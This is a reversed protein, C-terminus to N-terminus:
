DKVSRAPPIGRAAAQQFRTPSRCNHSEDHLIYVNMKKGTKMDAKQHAWHGQDREPIMEKFLLGM